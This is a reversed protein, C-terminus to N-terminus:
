PARRWAWANWTIPWAAPTVGQVSRLAVVERSYLPVVTNRGLAASVAARWSSAREAESIVSEGREARAILADLGAECAGGVNNQVPGAARASPVGACDFYGTLQRLAPMAFLAAAFARSRLSGGSVFLRDAPVTQVTVGFGERALAERLGAVQAGRAPDDAVLLTFTLSQTSAVQRGRVTSTVVRECPATACTWGASELMSRVSAGPAATPGPGGELTLRPATLDATAAWDRAVAAAAQRVRADEFPFRFANLTLQEFSPERAPAAVHAGGGAVLARADADSGVFVFGPAYRPPQADLAFPPQARRLAISQGPTWAAVEFAGDGPPVSVRQERMPRGALAHEPLWRAVAWYDRDVVPSQQSTYAAYDGLGGFYEFPVEGDLQGRAALRAQAATMFRVRVTRGGPGDLADMAYVKQALADRLMAEPSMLTHWAFIVDRATVPRGDTWRWDPRIRFTVELRRDQGDGVFRADGNEATPVRECGLAVPAGEGDRGVCGVHLAGLVTQAAGSAGYFPHLSEPEGVVAVTIAATSAASSASAAASPVAATAPPAAPAPQGAGARSPASTQSAPAPAGQPSTTPAAATSAASIGIGTTQAPAPGADRCAGLALVACLAIAFTKVRALIGCARQSRTM